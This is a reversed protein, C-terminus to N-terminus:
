QHHNHHTPKEIARIANACDILAMRLDRRMDPDLYAQIKREILAGRVEHIIHDAAKKAHIPLLQNRIAAADAMAQGGGHDGGLRKRDKIGERALLENLSLGACFDIMAQEAMARDIHAVGGNGDGGAGDPDAGADGGTLQAIARDSDEVGLLLDGGLAPLLAAAAEEVSAGGIQTKELFVRSLRTYYELTSKRNEDFSTERWKMWQGHPCRRKAEVLVIGCALARMGAKNHLEEIQDLLLNVAGAARSLFAASADIAGLPARRALQRTSKREGAAHPDNALLDNISAKPM